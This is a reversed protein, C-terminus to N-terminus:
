LLASTPWSEEAKKILFDRFIEVRKSHRLEEAYIFYVKTLPGVFEPLVHSLTTDGAIMYEPLSALGLGSIVARYIGYINNVRLVVQNLRPTKKDRGAEIIWNISSVPMPGDEGFIILKHKDLDQSNSPFGHAKLYDKSGYIRTYYSMFPRQILDSQRPPTMRIAIDAERMSLDLASDSLIMAVELDPYLEIFERIRPTLWTSGFAVTTSIKLPGMPRNKSERLNNQAIKLQQFVDKVTDFLMEGQETLILGRAHRHFLMCQLRDELSSIQRSIASQSLHLDEGAQTFSGAKAVTYFVRLKDWDM